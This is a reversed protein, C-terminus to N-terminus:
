RMDKRFEYENTCMRDSKGSVGGERQDMDSERIECKSIM